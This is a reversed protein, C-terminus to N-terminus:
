KITGFGDYMDDSMQIRLVGHVLAMELTGLHIGYM